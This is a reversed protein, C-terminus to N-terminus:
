LGETPSWSDLRLFTDARPNDGGIYFSFQDEHFSLSLPVLKGSFFNLEMQVLGTEADFNVEVDDQIRSGQDDTAVKDIRVILSPSDDRYVAYRGNGKKVFFVRAIKFQTPSEHTPPVQNMFWDEFVRDSPKGTQPDKYVVLKRVAIFGDPQRYTGQRAYQYEKYVELGELATVVTQTEKEFPENAGTIVPCNSAGACEFYLFLGLLTKFVQKKSPLFDIKWFCQTKM